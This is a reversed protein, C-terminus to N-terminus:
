WEEKIEMEADKLMRLRKSKDIITKYSDYNKLIGRIEEKNVKNTVEWDHIVKLGIILAIQNMYFKKYKEVDTLCYVVGDKDKSYRKEIKGEELLKKLDSSLTVMSVGIEKYL